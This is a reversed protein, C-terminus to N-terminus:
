GRAQEDAQGRDVAQRDRTPAVGPSGSDGPSSRRHEVRGEAHHEDDDAFEQDGAEAQDGGGRTLHELGLAEALDLREQLDQGDAV